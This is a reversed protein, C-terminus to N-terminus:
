DPRYRMAYDKDTPEYKIEKAIEPDETILEFERDNNTLTEGSQLHIYYLIRRQEPDKEIAHIIKYMYYPYYKRNTRDTAAANGEDIEICKSFLKEVKRRLADPPTPPGIGTLRKMLLPVNRNLETRKLEVLMARVDGTTIRRLIKQDRKLLGRMATVLKEGGGDDPDKSGIESDPEQAYVHQWWAVFHRNPSYTGAKRSNEQSFRESDELLAGDLTKVLGCSACKMQSKEMDEGMDGGCGCQNYTVMPAFPAVSSTSYAEMARQLEKKNLQPNASPNLSLNAIQNVIADVKAGYDAGGNIRGFEENAASKKGTLMIHSVSLYYDTETLKLKTKLKKIIATPDDQIVQKKSASKVDITSVKGENIAIKKTDATAIKKGDNPATKAEQAKTKTTSKTDVACLKLVNDLIKGASAFKNQILQAAAEM